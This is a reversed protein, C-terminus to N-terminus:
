EGAQVERGLDLVAALVDHGLLRRSGTRPAGATSPAGAPRRTRRARAPRATLGRPRRRARGEVEVRRGRLLEVLEVADAGLGRPLDDGVPLLLSAEPRDVLEVLDGADTRLPKGGEAIEHAHSRARRRGPADAGGRRPPPRRRAVARGARAPAPVRRPARTRGRPPGRARRAARRPPRSRRRM